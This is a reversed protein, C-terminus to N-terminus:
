KKCIEKHQQWNKVQCETSCYHAIKCRSCQKLDKARKECTRCIFRNKLQNMIRLGSKLSKDGEICKKNKESNYDIKHLNLIKFIKFKEQKTKGESLNALELQAPLLIQDINEREDPYLTVKDSWFIRHILKLCFSLLDEKASQKEVMESAAYSAFVRCPHLDDYQHLIDLYLQVVKECEEKTKNKAALIQNMSIQAIYYRSPIESDYRLTQNNLKQSTKICKKYYEVAKKCDKQKLHYFEALLFNARIKYFLLEKQTTSATAKLDKIIKKEDLNKSPKHYLYIEAINNMANVIIGKSIKSPQSEEGLQIIELCCDLASDKNGIQYCHVQRKQELELIRQDTRKKMAVINSCILLSLFLTITKNKM